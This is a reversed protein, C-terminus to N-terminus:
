RCRGGRINLCGGGTKKVCDCGNLCESDDDCAWGTPSKCTGGTADFHGSLCNSSTPPVPQGQLTTPACGSKTRPSCVGALCYFGIGLVPDAACEQDGSCARTCVNGAATGICSLDGICKQGPACNSGPSMPLCIPTSAFPVRACTWPQHSNAALTQCDGDSACPRECLATVGGGGMNGTSCDVGTPAGGDPMPRTPAATCRGQGDLGCAQGAVNCSLALSLSSTSRCQKNVCSLKTFATPNGMGSEFMVCDDDSNCPPNCTSFSELGPVDSWSECHGEQCGISETCRWAPFGPLCVHTRANQPFVTSLCTFGPVCEYVKGNATDRAVCDPSCADPAGLAPPLIDGICSAGPVCASGNAVCGTQACVSGTRVLGSQGVIDSICSSFVPSTCDDDSNCSANVLLCVGDPASSAVDIPSDTVRVCRLPDRCPNPASKDAPVTCRTLCEGGSTCVGNCPTKPDCKPVCFASGVAQTAAYCVDHPGCDLDATASAPNCPFVLSQVRARDDLCGQALLVGVSFALLAGALFARPRM